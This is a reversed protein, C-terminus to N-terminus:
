QAAPPALKAEEETPQSVADTEPDNWIFHELKIRRAKNAAERAKPGTTKSLRVALNLAAQWDQRLELIHLAAFGASYFWYWDRKDVSHPDPKYQLITSYDHLAAEMDGQKEAFQARQSLAKFKWYLHINPMELMRTCFERAKTLSEPDSEGLSAWADAETSLAQLRITSPLKRQLLENLSAIAECSKGSRLLLTAIELESSLALKGPTHALQRFLTLATDLSSQTNCQEAAKGALFLAARQLDSDPYQSAFPQLVLLAENFSGNKYLLEGLKLQIADACPANPYQKLAKRATFIAEAWNQRIEPVMINLRILRLKQEEDMDDEKLLSIQQVAGDVDPPNLNLMVEAMDLRAPIVWPSSPYDAIMKRLEELAEPMMRQASYHAQEYALAERLKSDMVTQQMVDKLSSKDALELATLNANYLASSILNDGGGTRIVSKFANLADDFRQQEYAIRGAEFRVAASKFGPFEKILADAQDVLGQKLLIGLAKLLLSESVPNAPSKKLTRRTLDIIEEYDKKGALVDCLAYAALPQRPNDSGNAWSTLKELAQPNSSFTKERMLVLFVDTLLASDPNSSIFALLQDEGMYDTNDTTASGTSAPAPSSSESGSSANEREIKLFASAVLALDKVKDPANKASALTKLENQAEDWQGQSALLNAHVVQALPKIVAMWSPEERPTPQGSGAEPTSPSELLPALTKAAQEYEKKRIQFDALWVAARASLEGQNLAVLSALSAQLLQYDHLRGAIVARAQLFYPVWEPSQSLDTRVLWQLAKSLSGQGILGIATWYNNAPNQPLSSLLELGEQYSGGRILSEALYQSVIVIQERSWNKSNADLSKRFHRAAVLPVNSRLSKLGEQFSAGPIKIGDGTATGSESQEPEAQAPLAVAMYLGVMMGILCAHAAKRTATSLYPSSLLLYM